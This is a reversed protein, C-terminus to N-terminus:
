RWYEKRLKQDIRKIRTLVKEQAQANKGENSDFYIKIDWTYEGKNNTKLTISDPTHIFRVAHKRNTVVPEVKEKM